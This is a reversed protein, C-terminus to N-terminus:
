SQGESKGFLDERRKVVRNAMERSHPLGLHRACDPGIGLLKSVEDVLPRRCVCCQESHALLAAFSEQPEPGFDILRLTAATRDAIDQPTGKPFVVAYTSMECVAGHSLVGAALVLGDATKAQVRLKPEYCITTWLAPMESSVSEFQETVKIQGGGLLSL